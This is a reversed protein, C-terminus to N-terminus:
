MGRICPKGFRKEPDVTIISRYDMASHRLLTATLCAGVKDRRFARLGIRWRRHVEREVRGGGLEAAQLGARSRVMPLIIPEISLVAPAHPPLCRALGSPRQPTK